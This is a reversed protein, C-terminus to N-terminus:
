AVGGLRTRTRSRVSGALTAPSVRQGALEVSDPPAAAARTVAARERAFQEEQGDHHSEKM